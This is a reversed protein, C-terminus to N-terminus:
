NTNFKIHEISVQGTITVTKIKNNLYPCKDNLVPTPSPTPIKIPPPLKVPSPKVAPPEKPFNPLPIKPPGNYTDHIVKVLSREEKPSDGSIEWLIIGKLGLRKIYEAKEEMSKTTDYSNVIKKQPDHSYGAGSQEDYMETAGPLPLAKYDVIGNEWSKDTSGGNCPKAIGETNSFGRSYLAGGIVIKDVPVGLSIMKNVSEEISFLTYATKYLNTQQTTRNVGWNGDAFDYTMININDLYKVMAPIPLAEMKKPDATTCATIEYNSFGEATMTERLLKLFIGFNKADM